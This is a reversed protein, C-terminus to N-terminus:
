RAAAGAGPGPAPHARARRAGARGSRPRDEGRVHHAEADEAGGGFWEMFTELRMTVLANRDHDNKRKVVAIPIEDPKAAREAQEAALRLAAFSPRGLLKCEISWGPAIVDSKGGAKGGYDAGRRQGGFLAAVRRELKKWGADPM